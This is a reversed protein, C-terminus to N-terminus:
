QRASRFRRALRERASKRLNIVQQRTVGFLAAIGQDDLPLEPWLRAMEEVSLELVAAIQRISAIGAVPLLATVGGGHEDRLNLLLAARQRVPLQGIEAWLHRLFERQALTEDVGPQPDPPFEIGRDTDADSVASEERHDRIGQLAAVVGVLEDLELPHRAQNFVEAVLDAHNMQAPSRGAASAPVFSHPADRWQQLRQNREPKRNEERWLAFGCVADGDEGEWVALGTRHTLLYRLKNKLSQRQPYRERLYDYWTHYAITAVYSRLNGIPRAGPDNLFNQLDRFLQLLVEGILDEADQSQRNREAYNLSSRLKYGIISRALPAAHQAILRELEDQAQSESAAKLLPLLLPDARLESRGDAQPDPTMAAPRTESFAM